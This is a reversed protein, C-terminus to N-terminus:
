DILVRTELCRGTWGKYQRFGGNIMKGIGQYCLNHEKCFDKLGHVHYEVGEPSVLLYRGKLHEYSRGEVAKSIALRTEPSVKRRLMGFSVRERQEPTFQRGLNPHIPDAFENFGYEPDAARLREIWAGERTLLVDISCEEVIAFEFSAEGYKDWARQLYANHHGRNRLAARHVKWRKDVNISSGVYVKNTPSCRIVYIGSKPTSM